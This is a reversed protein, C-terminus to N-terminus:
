KVPIFSRPIAKEPLLFILVIVPLSSINSEGTLLTVPSSIDFLVSIFRILAVSPVNVCDIRTSPPSSPLDIDSNVPGTTNVLLTVDVAERPKSTLLKNM